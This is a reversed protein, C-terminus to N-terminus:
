HCYFLIYSCSVAAIGFYTVFIYIIIWFAFTNRDFHNETHDYLM